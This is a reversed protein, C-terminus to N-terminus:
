IINIDIKGIPQAMEKDFLVINKGVPCVTSGFIIGSYGLTKYYQALTQFPAYMLSKDDTVDLPTFIQESLLKAYTYVAWETFKRKFEVMNIPNINPNGVAKVIRVAKKKEKQAYNEMEQNIEEYSIDDSITLDVLKCNRYKKDLEFHCFGFRDGSGARCEAIACKYIETEEGICLYLWEVGEPSFRNDSKIFEAKPVFREYDPVEKEGLKTGRGMKKDLIAEFEITKHKIGFNTHFLDNYVKLFTSNMAKDIENYQFDKRALCERFDDWTKKLAKENKEVNGFDFITDM